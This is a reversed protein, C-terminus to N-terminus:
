FGVGAGFSVFPDGSKYPSNPDNIVDFLVEAFIWVNPSIMQSYGGGLLLFPVWVRNTNFTNTSINYTTIGEYSFYLFEAHTYFQPVVRYRLFVSGGYNHSNFTPSYRRDSIYAYGIKGGISFKPTIKYGIMPYIGLYFYNNWFRLGVNGGYYVDSNSSAPNFPSIATSNESESQEVIGDALLLSFPFILILLLKNM